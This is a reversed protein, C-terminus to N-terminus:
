ASKQSNQSSTQICVCPEGISDKTRAVSSLEPHIIRTSNGPKNLAEAFSQAANFQKARKPWKGLLDRASLM